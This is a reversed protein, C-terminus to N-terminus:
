AAKADFRQKIFDASQHVSREAEPLKGVFVPWVHALGKEVVFETEVGAAALRENLRVADSYLIEKDSAFTLTPPLGVLDAYHPSALPAEPNAGALYKKAGEEIYIKKFMVDSKENFSLSPGTAALDTWPSYLVAGSPLPLGHDRISLLLALALGGGASDGGVVIRAPDRGQDLLWRYAALADDVAAPFPHEPALRYNLSFVNAKSARGLAFTLARHSKPSGFIYGGGHLYFILNGSEANDSKHWEGKVAGDDVKELTVGEPPEDPAMRDTGVRLKEPDTLHLPHRKVTWKLTWNLLIAKLSPL